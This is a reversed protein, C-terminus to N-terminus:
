GSTRYQNTVSGNSPADSTPGVYFQGDRSPLMLHGLPVFPEPPGPTTTSTLRKYLGHVFYRLMDARHFRYDYITPTLATFQPPNASTDVYITPDSGGTKADDANLFQPIIQSAIIFCPPDTAIHDFDSAIQAQATRADATFGILREGSSVADVSTRFVFNVGLLLILVLAISIMLEVLTFGRRTALSTVPSLPAPSLPNGQPNTM